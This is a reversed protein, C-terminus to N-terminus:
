SWRSISADGPQCVVRRAPPRDARHSDRLRRRAKRDPPAHIWAGAPPRIGATAPQRLVSVIAYVGFVAISLAVVGLAGALLRVARDSASRAFQTADVSGADFVPVAPDLAVVADRLPQIAARPTNSRLVVLMKPSYHQAAPVFVFVGQGTDGSQERIADGISHTASRDLSGIPDPAVGVVRRLYTAGCCALRKGLPDAGPWLRRATSESVLAVPDSGAQDSERFDRGRTMALGLTDMFGPSVHVWRGDLRRPAGSLGQPPTEAVIASVGGRPAPAEGGPLADTLGAATVGNVARVRTLLQAFFHHGRPEDYGEPLEVKAVVLSSTDFLVRRNLRRSTNELLMGTAILLLVAATVQVAVLMTRVTRGETRAVVAQGSAALRALLSVLSSRWLSGAGVVLAAVAGAGTAYVAIRWDISLDLTVRTWYNVQFAPFADSFLQLVAATFLLGALSAAACIAITESLLLRFVDLRTAGLSIRIALEGEREAARAFLMNGLNACAAIFILAAFGLITYGTSVLREDGLRPQIRMRSAPSEPTVPRAAVAVTLREDVVVDAAGANKRLLVQLRPQRPPPIPGVWGLPRMTPRIRELEERTLLRRHGFPTWIDISTEFGPPAVGVVQMLKHDLTVTGGRVIDPAASFWERWVRDSIVAVNAGLQGFVFSRAVGNLVIAPNSEAARTTSTTSGYPPRPGSM